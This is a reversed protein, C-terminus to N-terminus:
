VWGVLSISRVDPWGGQRDKPGTASGYMGCGASAGDEVYGGAEKLDVGAWGRVVEDTKTM